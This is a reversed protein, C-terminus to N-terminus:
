STYIYSYLLHSVSEYFRVRTHVPDILYRHAYFWESGRERYIYIHYISAM